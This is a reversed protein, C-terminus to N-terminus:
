CRPGQVDGGDEALRRHLEDRDKATLGRGSSTARLAATIAAALVPDPEPAPEGKPAPAPETKPKKVRDLWRGRPKDEPESVPESVPELAPEDVPAFVPEPQVDVPESISTLREKDSPAMLSWSTAVPLTTLTRTNRLSSQAQDENMGMAM